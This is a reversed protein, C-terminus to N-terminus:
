PTSGIQLTSGIAPPCRGVEGRAWDLVLGFAFATQNHEGERIPDILLPLAPQQKV